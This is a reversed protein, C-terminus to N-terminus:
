AEYEAELIAKILAKGREDLLRFREIMSWEDETIGAERPNIRVDDYVLSLLENLSLGTGKAIKSYTELTPSLPKGDNNLGSEINTVYQPSIGCQIAFARGSLRHEERYQKIYEGLTM